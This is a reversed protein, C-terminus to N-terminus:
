RPKKGRNQDRKQAETAGSPAPKELSPPAAYNESSPGHAGPLAPFQPPVEKIFEVSGAPSPLESGQPPPQPSPEQAAAMSAPTRVPDPVRTRPTKPPTVNIVGSGAPAVETVPDGGRQSPPTYGPLLRLAVFAVAAVAAAALTPYVWGPRSRAATALPETEFAALEEEEFRARVAAADATLVDNRRAADLRQPPQGKLAFALQRATLQIQEAEVRAAVSTRLAELVAQAPTGHIHEGLALATFDPHDPSTNM